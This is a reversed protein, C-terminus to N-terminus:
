LDRRVFSETVIIKKGDVKAHLQAEGNITKAMATSWFSNTQDNKSFGLGKKDQSLKQHSLMDNLVISCKKFKSINLAEDQLKSVNCKLSDVKEKHFNRAMLNFAEAEEKEDVVEDSEDQSDSDDSTQEKTVEAKLALYKVKEKTTKFAVGECLDIDNSKVYTKFRAKWFCFGNPELLNPKVVLPIADVAAEEENLIIVMLKKLKATEKDDDVKQKKSREQEIKKGARKLSGEVLESSIPELTSVRKFVKDFMKQISDFSENKLDKLKKEKM